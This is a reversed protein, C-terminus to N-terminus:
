VRGLVRSATTVSGPGEAARRSAGQQARESPAILLPTTSPGREVAREAARRAEKGRESEGPLWGRCATSLSGGDAARRAAQTARQGPAMM